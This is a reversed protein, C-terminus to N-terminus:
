PSATWLPKTLISNISKEGILIYKDIFDKRKFKATLQFNNEDIHNNLISLANELKNGDNLLKSYKLTYIERLNNKELLLIMTQISAEDFVMYSGFDVMQSIQAEKVIKNRLISAGANTTWNNPVIYGLLGNTKLIDLGNCVFFYWLDMKGQYYESLYSTKIVDFIQKNSPEKVYPPNGVLADFGGNAFVKSFSTKYEFPNIEKQQELSYEDNEIIDWGVLSNGSRINKTLDPLVKSFATTQGSQTTTGFNEDELLKLFLSLQSVEVAQNDIDVGFVNNLLIDQKRKLTLIWAGESFMVNGLDESRGDIETKGQLKDQYYFKHYDILYEYVGILFSGSGCSIDAFSLNDIEKPTKGKIIKGITNEIIYDVIYKPTYFVGGAKRVEPKQQIDVIGNEITVVKGLFREYISGLIHVPIANFNYPSEKSSIDICIDHFIVDEVGKFYPKDIISEKFVIGNYKGDLTHSLQVFSKWNKIENIYDEFEIQKDELFRIFVLRDITKQTAETLQKPSLEPNNNHFARALNLRLEDIYELFDDDVTKYGGGFLKLQREKIKQKPIQTEIFHNISDDAVAERSFLYYIEKFVNEDKYQKFNYKKVATNASYKPHPKTRCDIIIFEEFDTLISLPTQSNWGYKHAQLYLLTNNELLVAPKKAEVFFVPNKFNPAIYFAYDAFKKNKSGEQKQTKEVKVEQKYPNNQFEHNVDWGLAILFPDLFDKRVEAEQYTSSKYYAYNNEFNDVLDKVKKFAVEFNTPM